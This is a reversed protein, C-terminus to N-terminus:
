NEKIILTIVETTVKNSTSGTDNVCTLTYTTTELPSVILGTTNSIAGGTDFNTGTCSTALPSNWTLKASKGKFVTSPTVEFTTTPANIACISGNWTTSPACAAVPSVSSLQVGNDILVFIRTNWPVAYTTTGSAGSAVVTGSSNPTKIQPTGAPDDVNWTLTTNCSSGGEAITCGTASLTGSTISKFTAALTCAGTIPGATYTSGSLTGPCGSVSNIAYGSSATITFAKTVGYNVTASTPSISGGTGASTSILYSDVVCISGNWTTHAACTATATATSLQISNNYLYFARSGSSIAYATGASSNATAVTINTPTTVASTGVPNTTSWVLTTNCSSASAAITCNSATLTGSMTGFTVAVTCAGTIPGATYTTGSLTGPCGSVSLLKYGSNVTIAFAKTAGYNVTASTPSISGGATPSVSTSVLYSDTLCISGNWTTHAVCAATATAKALEISSNYLYFDRSGYAVTYTATSSNATAVVISTPTTVQSTSGVGPNTTTWSLSTTCSSAGAAITCNSASLTWTPPTVTVTVSGSGSEDAYIFSVGAFLICLVLLLTKLIKM